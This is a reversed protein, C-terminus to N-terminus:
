TKKKLMPPVRAFKNQCFFHLNIVRNTPFLGLDGVHTVSSCDVADPCNTASVNLNLPRM